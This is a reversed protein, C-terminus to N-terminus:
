RGKTATFTGMQFTAGTTLSLYWVEGQIQTGQLAGRLQIQDTNQFAFQVVISDGPVPWWAAAQVRRGRPPRTYGALAITANFQSLPPAGMMPAATPQTSLQVIGAQTARASRRASAIHANIQWAGVAARPAVM